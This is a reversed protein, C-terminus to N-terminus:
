IKYLKELIFDSVFVGKTTLKLTNDELSLLGKKVLDISQEMLYTYNNKDFKDKYWQTNIGWKTRLNTILYENALDVSSLFEKDFVRSGFLMGEIYKNLNSINWERQLGNYSHASPGLGLYKKQQWYSLNHKSYYTDLAFNSIEYHSFLEQKTYEILLEFQHISEDEKLPKLRGQKLRKYLLTGEEYTLHYSSLHKIPLQFATQLSSRWDVLSLNPLGYILDISINDFGLSFAKEVVKKSKSSNHTRNLFILDKDNFSQVGISLRNVGLSKLGVLYEASLDEPNAEFTIEPNDLIQYSKNIENLIKDIENISLLSPTGGGFYITEVTDENLFMKRLSIEKKLAKVFASKNNQPVISYFDCYNCKKHCFPIHLYIGAM